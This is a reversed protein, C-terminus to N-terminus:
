NKIFQLSRPWRQELFRHFLEIDRPPSIRKRKVKKAIAEDAYACSTFPVAAEPNSNMRVRRETNMNMQKNSEVAILISM